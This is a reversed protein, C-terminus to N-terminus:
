PALNKMLERVSRLEALRGILQTSDSVQQQTLIGAACERYKGLLDEWTAAHGPWGKATAFHQKLVRGDKLTVTIDVEGYAGKAGRANGLDERAIVKVRFISAM